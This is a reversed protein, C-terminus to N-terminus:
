VKRKELLDIIGKVIVETGNGGLTEFYKKQRKGVGELEDTPLTLFHKVGGEVKSWAKPDKEFQRTCQLVKEIGKKQEENKLISVESYLHNWNIAEEAVGNKIFSDLNWYQSYNQPPIFFVPTGSNFVEFATTLGPSSIILRSEAIQRLFDNHEFFQYHIAGNPTRRKMEELIDRNGACVIEAFDHGKALLDNILRMIVYPYETNVGVKISASEMGGLNILLKNKKPVGNPVEKIIPGVLVPNKIRGSFKKMQEAVGEFDQIFYIESSLIEEAIQEWMWFLSDIQVMPLGREAAFRASLPNMINVFLDASKFLAEHALLDTINETDCEVIEDACAHASLMKSTRSVLFVIRYKEFLRESITLLKSIPGFCFAKADCLITKEKKTTM